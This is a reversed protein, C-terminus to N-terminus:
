LFIPSFIKSLSSKANDKQGRLKFQMQLSKESSLPSIIKGITPRYGFTQEFVLTIEACRRM